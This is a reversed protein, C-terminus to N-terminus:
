GNLSRRRLKGECSIGSFRKLTLLGLFALAIIAKQFLGSRRRVKAHYDKSRKEKSSLVWVAEVLMSPLAVQGCPVLRSKGKSEDSRSVVPALGFFSTLKELCEFRDSSFNRVFTASTIPGM